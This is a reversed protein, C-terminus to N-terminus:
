CAVPQATAEYGLGLPDAHLLAPSYGEVGEDDASTTVSRQINPQPPCGGAKPNASSPICRQPILLLRLVMRATSSNGIYYLESM